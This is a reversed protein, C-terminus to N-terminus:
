KGKGDFRKQKKRGVTSGNRFVWYFWGEHTLKGNHAVLDKLMAKFEPNNVDESREYLGSPGEAHGWRIREPDWREVGKARSISRKFQVISEELGNFVELLPGLVEEDLIEYITDKTIRRITQVDKDSM